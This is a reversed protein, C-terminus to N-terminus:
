LLLRQKRYLAVHADKEQHRKKDGPPHKVRPVATNDFSQPMSKGTGRALPCPCLPLQAANHTLFLGAHSQSSRLTEGMLRVGRTSYM